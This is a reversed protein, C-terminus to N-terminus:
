RVNSVGPKLYHVRKEKKKSFMVIYIYARDM